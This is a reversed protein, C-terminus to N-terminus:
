KHRDQGLGTWEVVCWGIMGLGTKINEVWRFSPRGPPRKGEPKQVFLV